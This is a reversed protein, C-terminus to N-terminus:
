DVERLVFIEGDFDVIYLNGADDEGFSSINGIAGVDPTFATTRDTFSSSPQTAGQVLSTAPLSWVRQNVFDGFFYQGRLQVIPGRYVYGGTVSNGQLAGTGHSYEAVPATLGATSATGLTGEYSPWGFNLGVDAPTNARILDIEERTNQGVDGIYLHGTQRDFGARVPNRLGRAFVEPAGGGGAFPNGAPIAYDRNADAPFSDTRPDIRLIKGLLSNVDPAPAGGTGGDGVALYLFGDAGFGIWGGLHTTGPHAFRLITDASATDARDPDAVLTRYRRVEIDTATNVFYVYFTCSTAFDPALALGLLGREGAANVVTTLDLFPTPAIAGTAVTLLRVLGSKQLVLVRANDGAGTLFLPQSFGTAVRRVALAGPLDTVTVTLALTATTGGSSAQLTVLYTNNTDADTPAEFDPAAAFSLAGGSTIAFRGADAGGVISFTVAGAASATATYFVGATREPVSVSAASTIALAGGGTGVGGGGGGGCAALLFLLGLWAARM